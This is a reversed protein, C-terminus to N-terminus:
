VRRMVSLLQSRLDDESSYEFLLLDNPHRSQIGAGDSLIGGAVFVVFTRGPKSRKQLLREIENEDQLMLKDTFPRCFVYEIGNRIFVRCKGIGEGKAPKVPYIGFSSLVGQILGHIKIFSISTLIEEFHKKLYDILGHIFAYIALMLCLVVIIVTTLATTRISDPLVLFYLVVFSTYLDLVNSIFTSKLAEVESRADETELAKSLDVLVDFNKGPVPPDGENELKLIGFLKLLSFIDRNNHVGSIKTLLLALLYGPLTFVPFIIYESIFYFLLCILIRGSLLFDEWESISDLSFLYFRGIAMKYIWAAILINLLMRVCRLVAKEIKEPEDAFIKILENIM